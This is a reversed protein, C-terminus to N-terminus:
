SLCFCNVLYKNTEFYRSSKVIEKNNTSGRREPKNDAMGSFALPLNSPDSIDSTVWCTCSKEVALQWSAQQRKCSAKTIRMELWLITGRPVFVKDNFSPVASHWVSGESTVLFDGHCHFISSDRLSCGLTGFTAKQLVSFSAGFGAKQRGKQVALQWSAQCSGCCIVM